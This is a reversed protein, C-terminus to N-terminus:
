AASHQQLDAGRGALVRWRRGTKVAVPEVVGLLELHRMAHLAAIASRMPAPGLCYVERLSLEGGSYKRELWSQLAALSDTEAPTSGPRRSLRLAEGAYFRALEIGRALM